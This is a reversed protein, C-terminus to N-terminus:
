ELSLGDGDLYIEKAKPHSAFASPTLTYAYAGANNICLIDGIQPSPLSINRALVDIGTCLNGVVSVIEQPQGIKAPISVEFAALSTFLPELTQELPIPVSIQSLVNVFVPRFFGNMGGPVILFKTGRSEKIDVIKTVYTGADSVLFRGSEILLRVKGKQTIGQSRVLDQVMPKLAEWDVLMDNKAYPVGFGGGFNILSLDWNMRTTCFEALEFVNKLYRHIVKHDLIQSRMFVHVGSIEVFELNDIFQKNELLSEEDVGFKSPMGALIGPPPITDLSYNPNIRLGVKIRKNLKRCAENILALENYSDAVIICKDLTRIIDDTTKGPASYLIDQNFFGSEHALLVENASATDAGLGHTNMYSCVHNNPNAKVSYCILFDPLAHKLTSIQRYIVQEDYLYLPFGNQQVLNEINTPIAM